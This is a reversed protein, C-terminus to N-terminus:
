ERLPFNWKGGLVSLLAHGGLAAVPRRRRGQRPHVGRVVAAGRRDAGRAEEDEERGQVPRAPRGRRGDFYCDVLEDVANGVHADGPQAM